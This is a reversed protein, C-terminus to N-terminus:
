RSFSPAGLGGAAGMGVAGLAEERSTLVDCDAAAASKSCYAMFARSCSISCTGGNGVEVGGSAGDGAGFGLGASGPEEGSVASASDPPRRITKLAGFKPHFKAKFRLISPLVAAFM